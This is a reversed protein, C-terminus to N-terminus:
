IPDIVVSFNLRIKSTELNMYNEIGQNVLQINLLQSKLALVQQKWFVGIPIERGIGSCPPGNLTIVNETCNQLKIILSLSTSGLGHYTNYKEMLMGLIESKLLTHDQNLDLYNFVDSNERSNNFLIFPNNKNWKWTVSAHTFSTTVQEVKTM